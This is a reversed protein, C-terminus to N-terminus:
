HQLNVKDLMTGILLRLRSNGQLLPLETGLQSADVFLGAKLRNPLRMAWLAAMAAADNM